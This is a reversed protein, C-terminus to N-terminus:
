SRGLSVSWHMEELESASFAPGDVGDISISYFSSSGELPVEFRLSCRVDLTSPALGTAASSVGSELTGVGVIVGSEDTVLVEDGVAVEDDNCAPEFVEDVFRRALM